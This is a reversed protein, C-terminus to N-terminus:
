VNHPPKQPPSLVITVLMYRGTTLLYSFESIQINQAAATRLVAQSGLVGLNGAKEGEGM